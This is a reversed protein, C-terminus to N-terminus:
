SKVLDVTLAATWSFNPAGVPEGSNPNFYEYFGGRQVLEITSQTLATAHDEFGMRRLGDIILWNTNIWTPGQWYGDEDFLPSSVPVSPVPYATGFSFQNELLGVLQKAKKKSIIGTYLPMLTAITSQKLFTHTVFNRSYYQGSYEDWLQELAKETRDIDAALEPPLEEKIFDAISRLHQNARIFICNFTVDEIAFLSRRLIRNIDYGKRRLRRQTSFLGLADIIDIREAAPIHKTDNRVLNIVGGLRLLRIARIWYALQHEHMEQMWPPTNDLGTEWPHIQLVLGERHPDREAYLWEHYKLLAPYTQKYWARREAKKLKEGIKVIAEAIMPPQTIGSTARNDPSNPSVASNWIGAHRKGAGTETFIMNPVMGNHWQGNLLSLIEQKARGVDYHRLGIAIFCSDWLWQHPYVNSSPATYRGTHNADLVAKAGELLSATDQENM